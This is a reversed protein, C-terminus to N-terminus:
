MAFSGMGSNNSAGANKRRRVMYTVALLGGLMMVYTEPEPIASVNFARFDNINAVSSTFNFTQSHAPAFGFALEAGSARVALLDFSPAAAFNLTTQPGSYFNGDSVLSFTKTSDVGPLGATKLAAILDTNGATVAIDADYYAANVGATSSFDYEVGGVTFMSTTADKVTITEQTWAAMAGSAFTVGMALAVIKAANKTFKM